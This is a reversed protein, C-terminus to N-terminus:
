SARISEGFKIMMMKGECVVTRSRQTSQQDETYM